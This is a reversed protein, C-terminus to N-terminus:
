ASAAKETENTDAADDDADAEEKSRKRHNPYWQALAWDGSMNIIDGVQKERRRLISYVTAYKSEPLGGSELAKMVDQTSRKQRAATLYKKTAEPISMGLYDSQGVTTSGGGGGNPGINGSQTSIMKIAAIASELQAKRAELDALVAEYNIPESGM